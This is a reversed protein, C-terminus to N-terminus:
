YYYYREAQIHSNWLGTQWLKTLQETEDRTLHSKVQVFTMLTQGKKTAQLLSEPNNADFKSM